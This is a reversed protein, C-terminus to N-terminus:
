SQGHIVRDVLKGLSNRGQLRLGIERMESRSREIESRTGQRKRLGRSRVAAPSLALMAEADTLRRIDVTYKEACADHRRLLVVKGTKVILFKKEAQEAPDTIPKRCDPRECIPDTM